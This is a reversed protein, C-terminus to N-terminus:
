GSAFRVFTKPEHALAFLREGSGIPVIRDQEGHLVLLPAHVKVIREDSRFADRILWRVPLYPYAAAGIDAASTFPADLVLAGVPREAALAVALGTGLSEGFLVIRQPAIHAAAFDYAARADRLLGKETPHGSSGGYGRYCLALLGNGDAVLTRFREARLDLGGANGQFYIILPKQGRPAVHWAVLQEGDSSTLEIEEAEPLGCAEPAACRPGPFYMLRRQFAFMLALAGCYLVALAILLWELFNM